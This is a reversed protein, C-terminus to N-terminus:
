LEMVVCGPTVPAESGYGSNQGTSIPNLPVKFTNAIGLWRQIEAVNAPRVVAPIITQWQFTARQYPKIDHQEVIVNADGLAEKFAVIASDLNSLQSAM